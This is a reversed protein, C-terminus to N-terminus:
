ELPLEISFIFPYFRVAPPGMTSAQITSYYGKYLKVSLSASPASDHLRYVLGQTLCCHKGRFRLGSSSRKPIESFGFVVRASGQLSGKFCFGSVQIIPYDEHGYVVTDPIGAGSM